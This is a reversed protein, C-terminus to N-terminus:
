LSQLDKDVEMFQGEVDEVMTKDLDSQIDSTTDKNLMIGPGADTAETKEGSMMEGGTKDDMMYGPFYDNVWGQMYFYTAAVLGLVAIAAIILVMMNTKKRGDGTGGMMPSQGLGGVPPNNQTNFEM